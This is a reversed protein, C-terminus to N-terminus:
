GIREVTGATKDRHLIDERELEDLAERLLGEEAGTREMIEDVRMKRKVIRSIENKLDEVLKTRAASRGTFIMSLDVKGTRPDVAYLLLSERILQVAVKVDEVSVEKSFRLRAHAESLRVLSELQRTTATISNGEDLLRLAVYEEALSAISSQTLVPLIKRAEHIYTKLVEISVYDCDLSDDKFQEDGGYMGVIHEAVRRDHSEEPKDILLCVLDFRSLLTPPLSINEIITKKTNYKSEAPNCSALISCRANLTTVIGAKAVSVTQQEMVEHLVSRTSDSMKDFEDICCLGGDSLVLAGSELVFQGSDSDKSVSATLGVASSGRGSTYLGREAVRHAFALLQSKAIGPDGALLINIDGRLRSTSLDKPVGGVLQLLLGKKVNELGFVSPAVSRALLTFIHPNRRLKNVTELADESKANRKTNADMGSLSHGHLLELYTRFTSRVKKFRPNIRVPEAKLIGTLEVREGPVLRDVLSGRAVVTITMPAAGEAMEEPSEQLKVIQKDGYESEGHRLEFCLRGGCECATPESILGKVSRVRTARGCKVCVYHAERLEPMVSSLRTVMGRIRVIREVTSPEVSRIQVMGGINYPSIRIEDAGEMFQEMYVERVANEFIPLSEQPYHELQLRLEDDLDSCDLEFEFEHTSNMAELTSICRPSSRIFDKFRESARQVNITTGWILRERETEVYPTYTSSVDAQSQSLTLQDPSAEDFSFVESHTSRNDM